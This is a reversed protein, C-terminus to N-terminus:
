ASITRCLPWPGNRGDNSPRKWCRGIEVIFTHRHEKMPWCRPFVTLMALAAFLSFPQWVLRQIASWWYAERAAWDEKAIGLRQREATDPDCFAHRMGVRACVAKAVSSGGPRMGIAEENMEEAIAVVGLASLTADAASSPGHALLPPAPQFPAAIPARGAPAASSAVATSRSVAARKASSPAAISASSAVITPPASHRYLDTQIESTLPLASIRDLRRFTELAGFGSSWETSVRHKLLIPTRAGACGGRKM